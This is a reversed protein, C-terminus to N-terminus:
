NVPHRGLYRLLTAVDNDSEAPELAAAYAGYARLPEVIQTAVPMLSRALDPTLPSPQGTAIAIDWAHVAADLACAGAGLWAPMSGPPVPTPVNEADKAVTSWADFAASLAKDLVTSPADTFQGSPAFPNESPGPGGTLAAAFAHQDGAAHQLVQTVTWQACPTPRNWDTEAVGLVVSRLAHHAAELIEWHTNM